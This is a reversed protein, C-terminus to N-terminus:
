FEHETTDYPSRLVDIDRYKHEGQKMACSITGM